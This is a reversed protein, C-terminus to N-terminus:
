KRGTVGRGKKRQAKDTLKPGEEFRLSVAVVPMSDDEGPYYEVQIGEACHPCAVFFVTPKIGEVPVESKM